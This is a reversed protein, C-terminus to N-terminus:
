ALAILRPLDDAVDIDVAADPMPVRRVESARARLWRGAGADGTLALLSVFHERGVIAPGGITGSYEAAVLRVGEGFVNLLARLADADVRVGPLESLSHSIEAARAGLVVVLPDAGTEIAVRAARRVLPEGRFEVLQKAAGLRSSAGAALVVAAIRRADRV